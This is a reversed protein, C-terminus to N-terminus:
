DAIGELAEVVRITTSEGINSGLGVVKSDDVLALLNTDSARPIHYAKYEVTGRQYGQLAAEGAKAPM